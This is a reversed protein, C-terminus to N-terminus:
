EYDEPTDPELLFFDEIHELYWGAKEQVIINALRNEPDLDTDIALARELLMKYEDANQDQISLTTALSLYPSPNAGQSIEVARKFHYLAKERSGGMGEPVSAYYLIYFDDIVGRGFDPDLEYARDMLVAAKDLNMSLEVDFIDISIAALWGAGSWYLLPVEELTLNELFLAPNESYLAELFGPYNVELARFCYDRGRIYFKKARELMEAQNEYQDDPLMLAPTQVFANAYMIFGMGTTLLLGTHEPNQELLTEYMKLAFPLADGVLAPDEDGTFASGGTSGSLIDSVKNIALKQLSCSSFFLVPVVALLVIKKM